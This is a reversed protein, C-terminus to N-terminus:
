TSAYQRSAHAGPVPQSASPLTAAALHNQGSRSAATGEASATTPASPLRELLQPQLLIIIATMNDCGIGRTDRPNSALCADLLNAAADTPRRGEALQKLVFDVVDQNTMVDWVGDCALVFFRDEKALHVQLCALDTCSCPKRQEDFPSAHRAPISSHLLAIHQTRTHLEAHHTLDAAHKSQWSYSHHSSYRSSTQSPLSSRIRLILRTM